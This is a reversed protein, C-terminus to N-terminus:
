SKDAWTTWPPKHVSPTCYAIQPLITYKKLSSNLLRPKSPLDLARGSYFRQLDKIKHFKTSTTPQLPGTARTCTIGSFDAAFSTVNHCVRWNWLMSWVAYLTCHFQYSHLLGWQIQQRYCRQDNWCQHFTTKNGSINSPSLIRVIVNSSILSNKKQTHEVSYATFWIVITQKIIVQSPFFWGM